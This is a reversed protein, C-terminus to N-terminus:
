KLFDPYEGTREKHLLAATYVDIHEQTHPHIVHSDGCSFDNKGLQVQPAEQWGREILWRFVEHGYRTAL